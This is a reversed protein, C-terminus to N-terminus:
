LVRRPVAARRTREDSLEEDTGPGFEVPGARADPEAAGHRVHGARQARIGGPQLIPCDPGQASRSPIWSHIAWWTRTISAWAASPDTRAPAFAHVALREAGYAPRVIEWGGIVNRVLANSQRLKPCRGSSAVDRFPAPLRLRCRRSQGAPETPIISSGQRLPIPSGTSAVDMSRRGPITSRLRFARASVGSSRLAPPRSLQLQRRVGCEFDLWFGSFAPAAAYECRHQRGARLPRLQCGTWLLPPPGPQGHLQRAGGTNRM